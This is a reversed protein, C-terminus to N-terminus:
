EVDVIWICGNWRKSVELSEELVVRETVWNKMQELCKLINLVLRPVAPLGASELGTAVTETSDSSRPPCDTGSLLDMRSLSETRGSPEVTPIRGPM